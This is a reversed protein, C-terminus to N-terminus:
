PKVDGASVSSNQGPGMNNSIAAPQLKKGLKFMDAGSKLTISQMKQKNVMCFRDFGEERIYYDLGCSAWMRLFEDANFKKGNWCLTAHKTGPVKMHKHTTKVIWANIEQWSMKGDRQLYNCFTAMAAKLNNTAKGPARGSAFGFPLAKNDWKQSIGKKQYLRKADEIWPDRVRAINNQEGNVTYEYSFSSQYSKIEVAIGNVIADGKNPTKGNKGALIMFLETSAKGRKGSDPSADWAIFWKLLQEAGDFSKNVMKNLAFAGKASIMKEVDYATGDRIGQALNVKADPEIKLKKIELGLKERNQKASMPAKKDFMEDVIKEVQMDAGISFAREIVEPDGGDYLKEMANLFDSRNVKESLDMRDLLDRAQEDVTERKREFEISHRTSFRKM